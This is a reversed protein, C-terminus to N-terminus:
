CLDRVGTKDLFAFKINNGWSLVKELGGTIELCRTLNIRQMIERAWEKASM